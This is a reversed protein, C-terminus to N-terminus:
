PRAFQLKSVVMQALDRQMEGTLTEEESSIGLVDAPNYLYSRRLVIHQPRLWVADGPGLVSFDLVYVLEYEQVQANTGVVLARREQTQRIIKLTASQKSPHPVVNVGSAQLDLRLERSLTPTAGEIYMEHLAPSLPTMGHLHFGCGALSAAVLLLALPTIAFRMDFWNRQVKM